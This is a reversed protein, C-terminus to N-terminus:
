YSISGDFKMDSSPFKLFIREEPDSGIAPHRFEFVLPKDPSPDGNSNRPFAVQFERMAGSGVWYAIPEVRDGDPGSLYVVNKLTAATQSQWYFALARDTEGVNSEYTVHVIIKDPFAAALFKQQRTDFAKKQAEDMQDYKAELRELRSVAERVPKASRFSAHYTVRPDLVGEQNADSQAPPLPNPSTNGPRVLPGGSPQPGQSFPDRNLQRLAAKQITHTKGWPSDWLVKHCEQVSWNQYPKKTWFEAAVATEVLLGLALLSGVFRKM